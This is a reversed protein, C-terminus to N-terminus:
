FSLPMFSYAKIPVSLWFKKTLFPYSDRSNSLVEMPAMAGCPLPLEHGLYKKICIDHIIPFGNYIVAYNLVKDIKYTLQIKADEM